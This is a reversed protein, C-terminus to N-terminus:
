GNLIESTVNAILEVEEDQLSPYIPISLTTNFANVSNPFGKDDLGNTQHNLADVAKTVKIGRESFATRLDSFDHSEQVLPFRYYANNTKSIHATHAPAIAEFYVNAIEKRRSIFSDYLKLQEELIALNLNSVLSDLHEEDVLNVFEMDQNVQSFGGGSAATIFKTPHFSYFVFDGHDRKEDRLVDFAQCLDNILVIGERRFDACDLFMGFLNVLVVAKTHETVKSEVTEPSMHWYSDIDCLVPKAGAALIANYVAPCVYSPMIVEDNSSLGLGKLIWYLAHTGSQTFYFDNQNFTNKFVALNRNLVQESLFDGDLVLSNIKDTLLPTIFPQSHQIM